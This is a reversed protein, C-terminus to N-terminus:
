QVVLSSADTEKQLFGVKMMMDEYFKIDSPSLAFNYDSVSVPAAFKLYTKEIQAAGDPDAVVDAIGQKLGAVFQQIEKAHSKSWDRTAIWVLGADDKSVASMFDAATQGVGSHVIESRFPDVAIAGDIQATQLMGSMQPFNVEVLNVSEVPINNNLLWMRFHVDFSSKLGPMGIRKGQLSAPGIFPLGQRVMLWAQPDAGHNRLYGAVAVADVGNETALLFTPVAMPGLDVSGSMLGAPVNHQNVIPVLAVNIGLKTFLGKEKAVFLPVFDGNPVYGVNLTPTDSRAPSNWAVTFVALLVLRLLKSILGGRVPSKGINRLM